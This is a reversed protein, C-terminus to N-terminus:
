TPCGTNTKRAINTIKRVEVVGYMLFPLREDMVGVDKSFRNLIRGTHNVNFFRMTAYTIKTFILNHLNVSIRMFFVFFSTTQLVTLLITGVIIASYEYIM